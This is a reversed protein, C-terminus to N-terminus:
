AAAILKKRFDYIPKLRNSYDYEDPGFVCSNKTYEKSGVYAYTSGDWRFRSLTITVGYCIGGENLVEWMTMVKERANARGGQDSGQAGVWQSYWHNYISCTLQNGGVCDVVGGLFEDAWDLHEVAAVAVGDRSTWSSACCLGLVAISLSLRTM